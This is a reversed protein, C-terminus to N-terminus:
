AAGTAMLCSGTTETQKGTQSDAQYNSIRVLEPAGAVVIAPPTKGTQPVPTDTPAARTPANAM